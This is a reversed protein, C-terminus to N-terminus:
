GTTKTVTVAPSTVTEPPSTVTQAPTTVTHEETVTTTVTQTPTTVTLHNANTEPAKQTVTKQGVGAVGFILYAILLGAVLAGLAAGWLPGKSQPQLDHGCSPCHKSSAPVLTGCKPCRRPQLDDDAARPDRGETGYRPDRPPLAQGETGYRPDHPPPVRQPTRDDPTQFSRTPQLDEDDYSM